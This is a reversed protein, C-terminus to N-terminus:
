LIKRRTFKSRLQYFDYFQGPGIQVAPFQIQYFQLLLGIVRNNQNNTIVQGSFNESSFVLTNTICNAVIRPSDSDAPLRVLTRDAPDHYYRVFVALDTTPYIQIANGEQRAGVPIEVFTTRSGQGIRILSASRVENALVGVISRADDSASLKPKTFELLRLGFLYTAILGSLVLLSVAATVMVEPLTFAGTRPNRKLANSREFRKSAKM